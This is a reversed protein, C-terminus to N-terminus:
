KNIIKQEDDDDNNDNINSIESKIGKLNPKMELRGWNIQSLKPNPKTTTTNTIRFNFM